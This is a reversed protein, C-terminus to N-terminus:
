TIEVEQGSEASQIIAELVATAHYIEDPSVPFPAGGEIDAAFAELTAAITQPAPYDHGEYRVAEPKGASPIFRYIDFGEAEAWGANGFLSLRWLMPTAAITTLRGTCGNEFNITVHTNDDIDLPLSTHRSITRVSSIRGLLYIFADVVHIGLSTMGGAPSEDRNNRWNGIAQSLDVNFIGDIHIPSGLRGTELDNKLVQTNPALRRNHGIGAKLNKSALTDLARRAEATNLTFPKECFVHKGARACLMIQEFHLSHPTAIVIADVGENQAMDDLSAFVQMGNNDCYEMISLPTRSVAAVFRISSERSVAEVLTKGWRGLGIIGARVTM